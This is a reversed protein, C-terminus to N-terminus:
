APSRHLALRVACHPHKIMEGDPEPAARRRRHAGGPRGEGTGGAACAGVPAAYGNLGSSVVDDNRRVSTVVAEMAHERRWSLPRTM